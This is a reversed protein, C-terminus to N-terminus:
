ENEIGLPKKANDLTQNKTQFSVIHQRIQPDFALRKHAVVPKIIGIQECARVHEVGIAGIQLREMLDIGNKRAHVAEQQLLLYGRLYCNDKTFCIGSPFPSPVGRWTRVCRSLALRHASRKAPEEDKGNLMLNLQHYDRMITYLEYFSQPKIRGGLLSRSGVVLGVALTGIWPASEKKGEAQVSYLTAFAEETPLYNATGYGLLSLKSREGNAMRYIHCEIEHALLHLVKDLRMSKKPLILEHTNQEVRTNIASPDLKVSWDDFEYLSFVHDFFAKVAEISLLPNEASYKDVYTTDDEQHNPSVQKHEEAYEKAIDRYPSILALDQLTQFIKQSLSATQESAMGRKLINVLEQAAIEMEQATPATNLRDNYLSFAQADGLYCAEILHLLDLHEDLSGLYLSKVVINPEEDEIDSRLKLCMNIKQRVLSIPIVPYLIRPNCQEAVAKDLERQLANKMLLKLNDNTGDQNDQSTIRNWEQEEEQNFPGAPELWWYTDYNAIEKYRGFWRYDLQGRLVGRSLPLTARIREITGMGKEVSKVFRKRRVSRQVYEKAQTFLQEAEDLNGLLLHLEAREIQLVALERRASSYIGDQVLREMQQLALDSRELARQYQGISILYQAYEAHSIPLSLPLTYGREKLNISERLAEEVDEFNSNSKRAYHAYDHLRRALNYSISSRKIPASGRLSRKLLNVCQKYFLAAEKFFKRAQALSQKIEEADQQDQALTEQHEGWKAFLYAHYYLYSEYTAPDSEQLSKVRSLQGNVLSQATEFQDTDALSIIIPKMLYIEIAPSLVIHEEEAKAYLQQYIHGRHKTTLKEGRHKALRGSLLQLAIDQELPMNNLHPEEIIDQVFRTIRSAHGFQFSLWGYGIVLQAAELFQHHRLHLIALEAIITAQEQEDRYSGERMWQQYVIILRKEISWREDQSLQQLVSETVLPLLRLRAPDRALLSVRMLEKVCRQPHQVLQALLPAPLPITSVALFAVLQKADPSLRATIIDDVLPYANMMAYSLYHPDRVFRALGLQEDTDVTDQWGAWGFPYVPKAVNQAVIEMMRPNRGCLDAAEQLIDEQEEGCRLQEWVKICTELSLVELDTQFLYPDKRETWGPWVRTAVFLTAPHNHAIVEDLFLQWGSSLEGDEDLLVQADDILIVIRTSSEGMAQLVLRVRETVSAEEHREAQHPQLDNIIHALLAELHEEPTKGKQSADLDMSKKCEHYIVHIDDCELLRKQLLKFCSTKGAGLGAQIVIVKERISEQPNLYSLMKNMWQERGLIHSTDAALEKLFKEKQERVQQALNETGQTESLRILVQEAEDEVVGNDGDAKRLQEELWQWDDDTLPERYQGKKEEIKERALEIFEHRDEPTMQFGCGATVALYLGPLWAFWPSRRNLEIKGYERSTLPKVKELRELLHRPWTIGLDALIKRSSYHEFEREVDQQSSGSEKRKELLLAGFHSRRLQKQRKTTQLPVIRVQRGAEQTRRVQQM